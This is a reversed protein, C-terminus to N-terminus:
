VVLVLVVLALQVFVVPACLSDIEVVGKGIISEVVVLHNRESGGFRFVSESFMAYARVGIICFVFQAHNRVIFDCVM